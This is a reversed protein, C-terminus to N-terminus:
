RTNLLLRTRPHMLIKCGGDCLPWVMNIHQINIIAEGSLTELKLFPKM